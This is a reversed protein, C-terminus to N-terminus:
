SKILVEYSSTNAPDMQIMSQHVKQKEQISGQKFIEIIEKSKSYSFLKILYTDPYSQNARAIDAIVNAMTSRANTVDKSIIDLSQRHYEYYARRFSKMRPNILNEVLYYRNNKKDKTASWSDDNSKVNAPLTNLMTNLIQFYSEGGELSYSDYDLALILYAYYTLVSSLNDYFTEKSNELNKYPDFQIPIQKDILSILPTEYSANFVPRTAQVSIDLLLNNDGKDAAITIQFNCKIKEQGEFVDQTWKQNNLFDKVNRELQNVISKDSLGLNPANVRVVANLEQAKIFGMFHLHCIVFIIIKKM